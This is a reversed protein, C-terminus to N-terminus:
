DDARRRASVARAILPSGVPGCQYYNYTCYNFTWAPGDAVGARELADDAVNFTLVNDEVNVDDCKEM